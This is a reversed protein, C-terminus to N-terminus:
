LIEYFLEFVFLEDGNLEYQVYYYGDKILLDITKLSMELTQNLDKLKLINITQKNKEFKFVLEYNDTSRIMSKGRTDVLVLVEGDQYKLNGDEYFGESEFSYNREESKLSGKIKVKELIFSRMWNRNRIIVYSIYNSCM